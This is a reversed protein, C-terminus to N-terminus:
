KVVIGFNTRNTPITTDYKWKGTTSDKTTLNEFTGGDISIQTASPGVLIRIADGPMLTSYDTVLSGNKYM